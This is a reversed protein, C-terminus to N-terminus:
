SIMSELWQDVASRRFIWKQSANLQAGRLRGEKAAKRITRDSVKAYAAAELTVLWPDGPPEATRDDRRMKPM